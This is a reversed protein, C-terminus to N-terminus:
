LNLANICRAAPIISTTTCSRIITTTIYSRAMGAIIKKNAPM